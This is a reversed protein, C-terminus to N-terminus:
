GGVERGRTIWITCIGDTPIMFEVKLSDFQGEPYFFKIVSNTKPIKFAEVLMSVVDTFVNIYKAPPDYYELANTEGVKFGKDKLPNTTDNYDIVMGCSYPFIQYLNNKAVKLQALSASTVKFALYYNIDPEEFTTVCERVISINTMGPCRTEAVQFTCSSLDSSNPLVGIKFKEDQYAFLMYSCTGPLEDHFEKISLPVTVVVDQVQDNPPIFEYRLMEDACISVMIHAQSDKDNQYCVISDPGFRLTVISGIKNAMKLMSKIKKSDTYIGWISAM